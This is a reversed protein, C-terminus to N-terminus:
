SDFQQKAPGGAVPLERVVPELGLEKRTLRRSGYFDPARGILDQRYAAMAGVAVEDGLLGFPSANPQIEQLAARAKVLESELLNITTQLVAPMAQTRKPDIALAISSWLDSM